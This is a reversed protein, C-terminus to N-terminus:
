ADTLVVMGDCCTTMCTRVHPRGDITARCEFCIGMGCLPGRLEGRVSRRFGLRQFGPNRGPHSRNVLAAAVTTDAPVTLDQGDVRLTVLRSAPRPARERMPPPEM